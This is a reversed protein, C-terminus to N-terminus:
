KGLNFPARIAYSGPLKKAWLTAHIQVGYYYSPISIVYRKFLQLKLYIQYEQIDRSDNYLLLNSLIKKRNKRLSQHFFM